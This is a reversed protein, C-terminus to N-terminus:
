NVYNIALHGIILGIVWWIGNFLVSEIFTIPTPTLPKLLRSESPAM